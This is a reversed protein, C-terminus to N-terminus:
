INIVVHSYCVVIVVAINIELRMNLFAKSICIFLLCDRKVSFYDILSEKFCTLAKVICM